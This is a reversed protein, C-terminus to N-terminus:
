QAWETVKFQILFSLVSFGLGVSMLKGLQNAAGRSIKQPLGGEVGALNGSM